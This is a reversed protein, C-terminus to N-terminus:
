NMLGKLAKKHALYKRKAEEASISNEFMFLLAANDWLYKKDKFHNLKPIQTLMEKMNYSFAASQSILTIFPPFCHRTTDNILKRIDKVFDLHKFRNFINLDSSAYFGLLEGRYQILFRKTDSHQLIRFVESSPAANGGFVLINHTLEMIKAELTLLRFYM